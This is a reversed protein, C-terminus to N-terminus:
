FIKREMQDGWWSWARNWSSKVARGVYGKCLFRRWSLLSHLFKREERCLHSCRICQSSNIFPSVGIHYTGENQVHYMVDEYPGGACGHEGTTLYVPCPLCWRTISKAMYYSCLPCSGASTLSTVGKENELWHQESAKILQRTSRLM